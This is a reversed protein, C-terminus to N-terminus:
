FIKTNIAYALLSPESFGTYISSVCLFFSSCDHSMIIRLKPWIFILPLEPLPDSFNLYALCVYKKRSVFIIKHMKFLMEGELICLM